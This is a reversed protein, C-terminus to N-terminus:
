FKPPNAEYLKYGRRFPMETVKRYTAKHQQSSRGGPFRVSPVTPRSIGCVGLKKRRLWDDRHAQHIPGKEAPQKQLPDPM